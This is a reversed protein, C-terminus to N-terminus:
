SGFCNTAIVGFSDPPQALREVHEIPFGRQLQNSVAAGLAHDAVKVGDGGAEGASCSSCTADTARYEAPM